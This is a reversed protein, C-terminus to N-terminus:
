QKVFRLVTGETTRISYAGPEMTGLQIFSARDFNMVSRGSADFVSGSVVRDLFLVDEAPVPWARLTMTAEAEALGVANNSAGPTPVTFEVWPTGGDSQRGYSVGSVQPGFDIQDMITVGDPGMLLLSEGNTSSLAFNTHLDGQAIQNDAWVLLWGNAPVVANTGTPDFRFKMPDTADDSVYWGALDVPTAGPNYIEFWDDAEGNEDLPAGANFAQLENLFLTPLAGASTTGSLNVTATNAAPSLMTVAGTSPGAVSSNLRVHLTTSALVGAVPNLDVSAGFGFGANLSVEYPASVSVSVEDTLDSGSLTFSQPASPTGLDQAFPPLNTVSAVLVPGSLAQPTLSIDTLFFEDRTGAGSIDDGVWRLYLYGGNPVSFGAITVSKTEVTVSAPNEATAPSIL